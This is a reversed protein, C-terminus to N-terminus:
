AANVILGDWVTALDGEILHAGSPEQGTFTLTTGVRDGAATGSGTTGASVAVGYNEGLLYKDGAATIVVIKLEPNSALLKIQDQKEQTVGLLVLELSQEYFLTGNETSANITETYSSTQRPSKWQYFTDAAADGAVLGTIKNDVDTTVSAIDGSLFYVSAIGGQSDRCSLGQASNINCTYPM